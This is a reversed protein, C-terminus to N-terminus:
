NGRLELNANWIGLVMGVNIKVRGGCLNANFGIVLQSSYSQPLDDRYSSIHTRYISLEIQRITRLEM